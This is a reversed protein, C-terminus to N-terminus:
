APKSPRNSATRTLRSLRKINSAPCLGSSPHRVPNGTSYKKETAMVSGSRQAANLASKGRVVTPLTNPGRNVNKGIKTTKDWEDDMKITTHTTTITRATSSLIRVRSTKSNVKVYTPTLQSKLLATPNALHCHQTSQTTELAINPRFHKQRQCDKLEFLCRRRFAITPQPFRLKPPEPGM